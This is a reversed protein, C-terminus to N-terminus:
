KEEKELEIEIRAPNAAYEMSMEAYDMAADRDSFIFETYNVTVVYKM